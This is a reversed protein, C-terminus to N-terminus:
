MNQLKSYRFDLQPVIYLSQEIQVIQESTGFNNNKLDLQDITNLFQKTQVSQENIEWSKM